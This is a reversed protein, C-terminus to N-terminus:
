RPGMPRATSRVPTQGVGRAGPPTALAQAAHFPSFPLQIGTAYALRKRAEVVAGAYRVMMEDEITMMNVVHRHMRMRRQHESKVLARLYQTQREHASQLREEKAARGEQGPGASGSGGDAGGQSKREAVEDKARRESEKEQKDAEGHPTGREAERAGQEATTDTM